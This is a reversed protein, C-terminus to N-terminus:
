ESNEESEKYAPNYPTYYCLNVFIAEIRRLTNKTLDPSGGRAFILLPLRIYFKRLEGSQPTPMRLNLAAAFLTIKAAARM